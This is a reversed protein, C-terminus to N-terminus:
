CLKKVGGLTKAVVVLRKETVTVVENAAQLVRQDPLSERIGNSDM